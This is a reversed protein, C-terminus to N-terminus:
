PTRFGLMEAIVRMPLPYAITQMLDAESVQLLPELMGDVISEVQTRLLEVVAPSFGRNMLKRLRTHEPADLFLMWLGFLRTLEAFELRDDPALSLLFMGTRKATLRADRLAMSCDAHSFIAWAGQKYNVYHAAGSNLFRRYTPYPDASLSEGFFEETIQMGARGEAM